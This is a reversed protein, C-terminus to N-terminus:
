TTLSVYLVIFISLYLEFHLQFASENYNARWVLFYFRTLAELPWDQIVRKIM